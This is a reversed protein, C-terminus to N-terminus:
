CTGGVALVSYWHADGEGLHDVWLRWGVHSAVVACSDSNGVTLNLLASGFCYIHAIEPELISGGLCLEFVGPVFAFAVPNVIKGLVVGDCMMSGHVWYIQMGFGGCRTACLGLDTAALTHENGPLGSFM